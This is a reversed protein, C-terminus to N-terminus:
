LCVKREHFYASSDPKKQLAPYSNYIWKRKREHFEIGGQDPGAFGTNKRRKRLDPVSVEQEYSVVLLNGYRPPSTNTVSRWGSLTWCDLRFLVNVIRIFNFTGYYKRGM